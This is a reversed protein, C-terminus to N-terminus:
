GQKAQLYGGERGGQCAALPSQSLSSLQGPRTKPEVLFTSQDQGNSHRPCSSADRPNILGSSTLSNTWCNKRLPALLSNLSGTPTMSSTWFHMLLPVSSSGAPELWVALIYTRTGTHVGVLCSDTSYVQTYLFVSSHM